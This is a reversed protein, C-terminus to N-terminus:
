LSRTCARKFMESKMFDPFALGKTEQMAFHIEDLIHKLHETDSKMGNSKKKSM